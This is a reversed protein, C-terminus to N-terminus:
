AVFFFTVLLDFIDRKLFSSLLCSSYFVSSRWCLKFVNEILFFSLSHKSVSLVIKTLMFAKSVISKGNLKREMLFDHVGGM